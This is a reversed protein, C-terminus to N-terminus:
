AVHQHRVSVHESEDGKQERGGSGGRGGLSAKGAPTVRCKVIVVGAGAVRGLGDAHAVGAADGVHDAPVGDVDLGSEVGHGARQRHDPAWAGLAVALVVTSRDSVVAIVVVAPVQITMSIGLREAKDVLTARAVVALRGRSCM